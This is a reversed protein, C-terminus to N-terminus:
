SVQTSVLKPRGSSSKEFEYNSMATLFKLFSSGVCLCEFPMQGSYEEWEPSMSLYIFLKLHEEPHFFVM